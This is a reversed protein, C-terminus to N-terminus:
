DIKPNHASRLQNEQYWHRSRVSSYCTPPRITNMATTVVYYVWKDADKPCLICKKVVGVSNWGHVYDFIDVMDGVAFKRKEANSM